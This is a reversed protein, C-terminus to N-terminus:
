LLPFKYRKDGIWEFFHKYEGHQVKKIVKSYSVDYSQPPPAGLQIIKQEDFTRTVPDGVNAYNLGKLMCFPMEERNNEDLTILGFVRCIVPRYEYNACTNDFLFPCDYKFEEKSKNLKSFNKYKKATNKARNIISKKRAKDLQSFGKTMFSYELETIKLSFNKCCLSCGDKCAIYPKERDFYGKLELHLNELFVIYEDIPTLDM